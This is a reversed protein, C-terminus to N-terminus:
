RRKNTKENEELKKISMIAREYVNPKRLGLKKARRHILVQSLPPTFMQGIEEDTYNGTTYLETLKDDFMKQYDVQM